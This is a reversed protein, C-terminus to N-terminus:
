CHSESHGRLPATLCGIARATTTRAQCPGARGRDVATAVALTAALMIVIRVSRRSRTSALSLSRWLRARRRTANRVVAPWGIRGTTGFCGCDGTEGRRVARALLGAFGVLMVAAVAAATRATAPLMLGAALLLEIAVLAPRLLSAEGASCGPGPCEWGPRRRSSIPVFWCSSCRRPLCSHRWGSGHVADILVNMRASWDGPLGLKGWLQTHWERRYLTMSPWRGSRARWGFRSSAGHGLLSQRVQQVLIAPKRRRRFQGRVCVDGCRGVLMGRGVEVAEPSLLGLPQAPADLRRLHKSQLLGGNAFHYASPVSFAAYM